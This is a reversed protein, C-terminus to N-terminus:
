GHPIPPVGGGGTIDVLLVESDQNTKSCEGSDELVQFNNALEIVNAETQVKKWGKKVKQFGDGNEVTDDCVIPLWEYKVKVEIDQHIENTFSLTDPFDQGMQVEILVRAFSLRDKDKTIQDLMLPTGLQGVIKFLSREGWYKLDLNHLQIWIPVSRVDDKSYDSYADWPKMVVPNKIWSCIAEMFFKM